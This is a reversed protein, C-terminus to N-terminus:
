ERSRGKEEEDKMKKRMQEIVKEKDIDKVKEKSKQSGSKVKINKLNDKDKEEFIKKELARCDCHDMLAKYSM